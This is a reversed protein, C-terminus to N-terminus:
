HGEKQRTAMLWKDICDCARAFAVDESWAVVNYMGPIALERGDASTEKVSEIQWPWPLSTSTETLTVEFGRMGTSYIRKAM